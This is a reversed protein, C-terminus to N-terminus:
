CETSSRAVDSGGRRARPNERRYEERKKRGEKVEIPIVLEQGGPVPEWPTAEIGEILELDWRQSDPVKRVTRCRM